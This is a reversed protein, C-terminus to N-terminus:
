SDIWGRYFKAIQLVFFPLVVFWYLPFGTVAIITFWIVMGWVGWGKVKKEIAVTIFIGVIFTIFYFIWLYTSNSKILATDWGVQIDRSGIDEYNIYITQNLFTGDLYLRGVMPATNNNVVYNSTTCVNNNLCQKYYDTGNWTTVITINDYDQYLSARFYCTRETSITQGCNSYWRNIGLSGAEEAMNLIVIDSYGLPIFINTEDSEYGDKEGTFKHVLDPSGYVYVNGNSDTFASFILKNEGAIQLYTKVLVDELGTGSSQAKVQILQFDGSLVYLTEEIDTMNDNFYSFVQAGGDAQGNFTVIVEGSGLQSQNLYINTTNTYTFGGSTSTITANTSSTFTLNLISNFMQIDQTRGGGVDIEEEIKVAGALSCSITADLTNDTELEGEWAYTSNITGSTVTCNPSIPLGSNASTINYQIRYYRNYITKNQNTFCFSTGNTGCTTASWKYIEFEPLDIQKTTSNDKGTISYTTSNVLTNNEYYINYTVNTLNKELIGTNNVSFSYTTIFAGDTPSTLNNWVGYTEYTITGLGNHMNSGTNDYANSTWYIENIGLNEMSRNYVGDVYISMTNNFPNTKNIVIAWSGSGFQNIGGCGLGHSMTLVNSGFINVYGYQTDGSCSGSIGGSTTWQFSIDKIYYYPLLRTSKIEVNPFNGGQSITTVINGSETISGGNSSPSNNQWHTWNINGDSFDDFIYASSLSAIWILAFIGIIAKKM